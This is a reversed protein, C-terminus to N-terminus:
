DLWVPTSTSSCLKKFERRPDDALFAKITSCRIFWKGKGGPSAIKEAKLWHKSIYQLTSKPTKLGLLSTAQILAYWPDRQWEEKVIAHFYHDEMKKLNVLWPRQRLCEVIDEELFMWMRHKRRSLPCHKGKLYDFAVWRIINNPGRVGLVRALESATYFNDRRTLGNKCAMPEISTERRRLRGALQKDSM